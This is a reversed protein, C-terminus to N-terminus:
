LGLSGLVADQAPQNTESAELYAKQALELLAGDVGSFDYLRGNTAVDIMVAGLALRVIEQAESGEGFERLGQALAIAAVSVKHPRKGFKGAFMDPKQHWVQAVLRRAVEAPDFPPVGFAIHAQLVQQVVVSAESMKFMNKAQGFM